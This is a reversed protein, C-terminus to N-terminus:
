VPKKKDQSTRLSAKIGCHFVNVNLQAVVLRGPVLSVDVREAGHGAEVNVAFGDHLGVDHCLIDIVYASAQMLPTNSSEGTKDHSRGSQGTFHPRNVVATIDLNLAASEHRLIWRQLCVDLQDHGAVAVLANSGEVLHPVHKSTARATGAHLRVQTCATRACGHNWWPLFSANLAAGGGQCRTQERKKLVCRESRLQCGVVLFKVGHVGLELGVRYALPLQAPIRQLAPAESSSCASTRHRLIPVEQQIRDQAQGLHRKDGEEVPLYLTTTLTATPQQSVADVFCTCDTLRVQERM